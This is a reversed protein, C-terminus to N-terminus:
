EPDIDGDCIVWSRVELPQKVCERAAATLVGENWERTDTDMHGLLQQRPMSKPNMTHTIIQHGLKELSTKLVKWITSKGCGSPGVLVVGMRQKTAEHFQLIKAVQNESYELKFESITEQISKELEEYQIDEVQTGTFIDSVLPIFRRLDAYTLKPLTNIRIAKILLIAERDSSIQSRIAREAQIM